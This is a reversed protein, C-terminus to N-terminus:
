ETCEYRSVMEMWLGLSHWATTSPSVLIIVIYMLQPIVKYEKM